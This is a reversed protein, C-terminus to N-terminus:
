GGDLLFLLGTPDISRICMVNCCGYQRVLVIVEYSPPWTTTGLWDEQLDLKKKHLCEKKNLNAYSSAVYTCVSQLWWDCGAIPIFLCVAFDSLIMAQLRSAICPVFYLEERWWFWFKGEIWLGSTKTLLDSDRVYNYNKCNNPFQSVSPASERVKVSGTASLPMVFYYVWLVWTVRVLFIYDVKIQETLLSNLM